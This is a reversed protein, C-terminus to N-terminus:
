RLFLPWYNNIWHQCYSQSLSPVPVSQQRAQVQVFMEKLLLICLFELPSIIVAHTSSCNPCIISMICFSRFFGVVVESSRPAFFTYQVHMSCEVGGFPHAFLRLGELGVVACVGVRVGCFSGPWWRGQPAFLPFQSKNESGGVAVPAGIFGQRFEKDPRKDIEISQPFALFGQSTDVKYFM